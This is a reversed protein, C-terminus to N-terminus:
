TLICVKPYARIWHSTNKYSSILVCVLVSPLGRSSAPSPLWGYALSLPWSLFWVQWCRSRPSAAQSFNRNHLGGLRHYKTRIDQVSQCRTVCAPLLGVAWRPLATLPPLSLPIPTTPLLEPFYPRCLRLQHSPLSLLLRSSHSLCAAQSALRIDRCVFPKESAPATDGNEM